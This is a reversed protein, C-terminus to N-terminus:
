MNKPWVQESINKCVYSLYVICLSRQFKNLTTNIVVQATGVQKESLAIKETYIFSIVMLGSAWALVQYTARQREDGADLSEAYVVLVKGM